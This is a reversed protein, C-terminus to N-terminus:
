TQIDQLVPPTRRIIDRRYQSTDLPVPPVISLGPKRFTKSILCTWASGALKSLSGLVEEGAFTSAEFRYLSLRLSYVFRTRSVTSFLQSSQNKEEPHAGELTSVWSTFLCYSNWVHFYWRRRQNKSQKDNSCRSDIMEDQKMARPEPAHTRPRFITLAEVPTIGKTKQAKSNSM